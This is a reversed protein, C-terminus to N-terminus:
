AAPRPDPELPGLRYGIGRRNKIAAAAGAQALKRRLRGAHADVTRTQPAADTPYGWVQGLLETRTHVREPERALRYLLAFETNSLELPRGAFSAERSAQDLRLPGVSVRDARRALQSRAILAGLRARLRLYSLSAPQFDDSGADFAALECLEGAADSLVLVPVDRDPGLAGKSDCGRLERVLRLTDTLGPLDGLVVASPARQQLLWVFQPHAQARDPQYGDLALRQTLTDQAAPHDSWILVRPDKM